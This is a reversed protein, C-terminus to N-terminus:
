QVGSPEKVMCSLSDQKTLEAGLMLLKCLSCPLPTTHLIPACRTLAVELHKCWRQHLELDAKAKALVSRLVSLKNAPRSGVISYSEVYEVLAYWEAPSWGGPKAHTELVRANVLFMFATELPTYHHKSSLELQWKADNAHELGYCLTFFIHLIHFDLELAPESVAQCCNAAWSSAM